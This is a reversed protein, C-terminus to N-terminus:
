GKREHAHDQSDEQVFSGEPNTGVVQAVFTGKGLMAEVLSGKTLASTDRVISGDPLRIISYGRELTGAPSLARLTGSLEAIESRERALKHNVLGELRLWAQELGAREQKIVGTPAQLVPRSTLLSLLEVERSIIKRTAGRLAAQGASISRQEERFDPVIRRAADTPTSARYDAVFDLLPADGEHGIASVIPTKAAAAARVLREDSFPLLDETSGGGRAVVIVDVGPLADLEAIAASVQQAASPGQVLVERIEFDVSPWRLGANVLVDDKAKADKGCILGVRVPFPPLPKKLDERFLGETALKKRLQEIQALLSGLGAVRIENARLSMQGSREFYTPKVKAVVRVGEDFGPGAGDLVGAFTTARMSVDIDSDRLTFFSMQTAGRRKFQVVQGEVWTEPAREVHTKLKSSLVRLPWPNEASTEGATAPLNLKEVRWTQCRVGVFDGACPLSGACAQHRM